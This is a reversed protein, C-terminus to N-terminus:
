GSKPPTFQWNDIILRVDLDSTNMFVKGPLDLGQQPEYSRYRINWGSQALDTFNGLKDVQSTYTTAPDYRGLAWYRLGQIPVQWGLHEQLLAEPTKAVYVENKSTRM